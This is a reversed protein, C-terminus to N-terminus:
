SDPIAPTIKLTTNWNACVTSCAAKGERLYAGACM